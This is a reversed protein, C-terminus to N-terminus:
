EIRRVAGGASVTAVFPREWRRAHRLMRPIAAVFARAMDTGTMNKGNLVFAGVGARRLARSEIDRYRIQKDKTLVIWGEIGARSLWEADPTGSAFAEDHAIVTLGAERLAQPVIRRGLSADVFFVPAAERRM